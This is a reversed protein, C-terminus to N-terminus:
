YLFTHDLDQPKNKEFLELISRVVNQTGADLDKICEYFNDVKISRYQTNQSIFGSAHAEEDFLEVDLYKEFIVIINSHRSDSKITMFLEKILKEEGEIVEFFNGDSFVLLGKIGIENNRVETQQLIEVIESQELSNSASSVYSIAYKM